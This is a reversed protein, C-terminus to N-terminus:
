AAGRCSDPGAARYSAQGEQSPVPEEHLVWGQSKQPHALLLVQDLAVAGPLHGSRAQVATVTTLYGSRFSPQLKAGLFQNFFVLRAQLFKVARKSAIHLM